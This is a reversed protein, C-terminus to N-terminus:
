NHTKKRMIVNGSLVAKYIVNYPIVCYRDMATAWGVAILTDVAIDVPLMDAKADNKCTVVHLLGKGAAVALGSPGNM